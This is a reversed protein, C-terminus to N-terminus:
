GPVQTIVFQVIVQAVAVIVLGIIAYLITNKAGNISNSDGTSTIYKLGGIIVMIVAVVGIVFSLVNIVTTITGQVTSGDPDEDCSGGTLAVGECVAKKNAEDSPAAFAPAAVLSGSVLLTASALLAFLLKKM